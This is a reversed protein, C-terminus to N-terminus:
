WREWIGVVICAKPDPLRCCLTSAYQCGHYLTSLPDIPTRDSTNSLHLRVSFLNINPIDRDKSLSGNSWPNCAALGVVGQFWDAIRGNQPGDSTPRATHRQVRSERIYERVKEKRNESQNVGVYWLLPIMDATTPKRVLSHNMGLIFQRLIIAVANQPLEALVLTKRLFPQRCCSSKRSPTATGSDLPPPRLGKCMTLHFESAVSYHSLEIAQSDTDTTSQRTQPLHRMYRCANYECSLM